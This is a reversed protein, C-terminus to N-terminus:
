TSYIQPVKIIFTATKIHGNLCAIHLASYGTSLHVETAVANNRM